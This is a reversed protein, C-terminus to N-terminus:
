DYWARFYYGNGDEDDELEFENASHFTKVLEVVAQASLNYAEVGEVSVRCDSRPPYIVYGIFYIAADKQAVLAREVAEAMDGISPSRNQCEDPDAAGIEILKGLKDLTLGPDPFSAHPDDQYHPVAETIEEVEESPFDSM